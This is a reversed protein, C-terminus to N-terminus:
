IRPRGIPKNGCTISYQAVTEQAQAHTLIDSKLRNHKACCPQCNEITYGISSDIRDVGSRIESDPLGISYVCPLSIIEQWQIFTLTCSIGRLRASSRFSGFRAILSEGHERYRKRRNVRMCESCRGDKNPLAGAHRPCPCHEILLTM